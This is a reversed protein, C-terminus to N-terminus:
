VPYCMTWGTNDTCEFGFKAYWQILNQRKAEWEPNERDEEIPMPRLCIAPVECRSLIQMITPLEEMMWTGVGCRRYQKEVRVREVYFLDSAHLACLFDCAVESEYNTLDAYLESLEESEDDMVVAMDYSPGYLKQNLETFDSPIRKVLIEGITVQNLEGDKDEKYVFFEIEIDAIEMGPRPAAFTQRVRYEIDSLNFAPNVKVKM